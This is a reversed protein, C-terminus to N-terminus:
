TSLCAVARYLSKHIFSFLQLPSQFCVTVFEPNAQLWDAVRERIEAHHGVDGFVCFSLAYFMCNGDDSVPVERM